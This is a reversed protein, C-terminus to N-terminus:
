LLQVSAGVELSFEIQRLFKLLFFPLVFLSEQLRTSNLAIRGPM